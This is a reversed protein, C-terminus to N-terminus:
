YDIFCSSLLGILFFLSISHVVTHWCVSYHLRFPFKRSVCLRHLCFGSPVSLRLLSLGVLCISDIILLSELFLLGPGSSWVLLNQQANIASNVAIM